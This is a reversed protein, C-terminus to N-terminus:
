CVSHSVVADTGLISTHLFSFNRKQIAFCWLRLAVSLSTCNDAESIVYDKSHNYIMETVGTLWETSQLKLFHSCGLLM